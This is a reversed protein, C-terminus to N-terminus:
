EYKGKLDGLKINFSKGISGRAKSALTHSRRQLESQDCADQGILCKHFNIMATEVDEDEVIILPGSYLQMFKAEAKDREAKDKSLAITAATESATFYLELRKDWVPKLLAQERDAALKEAAAKQQTAAAEQQLNYQRVTSWVGAVAIIVTILPLFKVIKELQFSKSELNEVDFKLKKVELELKQLQAEAMAKQPDIDVQDPM